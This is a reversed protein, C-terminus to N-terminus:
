PEKGKYPSETVNSRTTIVWGLFQREPRMQIWEVEPVESVRPSGCFDSGPNWRLIVNFVVM